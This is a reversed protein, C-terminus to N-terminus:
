ARCFPGFKSAAFQKIGAQVCEAVADAARVVGAADVDLHTCARLMQPGMAGIRVGRERLASSLQSADGIEPDLGFFVLNSEVGDLDISIGDIRSIAEAFTRANAHDEALREVNNELAYIASAAIIGVQRLAGGMMKRIRRARHINEKSGVLISGMPCGLGKSFCISVTDFGDCIERVHVNSTTVANFLRAGDLHTKLGVEHAWGCIRQLQDVPWARGGGGNTTNECCLLKTTALHQNDAHVKGELDSVDVMGHRGRVTRTTIGSIAAPAGGEFRAIHGNEEILLEDGPFCHSRIGMQNSQTGSCAFVAAEKNLLEAVMSELRNVTPDEGGMDDGVEVTMMAQLMGPTPRTVTDSFMNVVFDSM